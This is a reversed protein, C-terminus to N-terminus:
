FSHVDCMVPLAFEKFVSCSFFFMRKDGKQIVKERDRRNEEEAQQKSAM